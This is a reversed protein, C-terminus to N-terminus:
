KYAADDVDPTNDTQTNSLVVLFLVEVLTTSHSAETRNDSFSLSTNVDKVEM